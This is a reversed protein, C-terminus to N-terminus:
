DPLLGSWRAMRTAVEGRTAGRITGAGLLHLTARTIHTQWAESAVMSDLQSPEGRVLFFGNLDGGHPDLLVVDFSEITGSRELGALFESFEGFHAQSIRERGPIPRNWAFFVANNAM